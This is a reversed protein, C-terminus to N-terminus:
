NPLEKWSRAVWSKNRSQRGPKLKDHLFIRRGGSDWTPESASAYMFIDAEEEEEETEELEQDEESDEESCYNVWLVFM